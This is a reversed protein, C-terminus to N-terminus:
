LCNPLNASHRHAHFPASRPVEIHPEVARAREEAAGAHLAMRVRIAGIEEAWGEELLARQATLAAETADTASGFPACFAYGVTKFVYGGHVEIASKLLEDHRALTKQMAQPSREWFRTSGEIDTFLFTVTGTPPSAV